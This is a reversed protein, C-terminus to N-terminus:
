RPAAKGLLSRAESQGCELSPAASFPATSGRVHAPHGPKGLPRLSVTPREHSAGQGHPGVRIRGSCAAGRWWLCYRRGWRTRNCCYDRRLAPSRNRRDIVAGAARAYGFVITADHPPQETSKPPREIGPWANRLGREEQPVGSRTGGGARREGNRRRYGGRQARPVIL